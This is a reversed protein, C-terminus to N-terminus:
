DKLDDGGEGWVNGKSFSIILFLFDEGGGLFPDEREGEERERRRGRERLLLPIM